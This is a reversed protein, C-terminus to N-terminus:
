EQQNPTYAARIKVAADRFNLKTVSEAIVFSETTIAAQDFSAAVELM